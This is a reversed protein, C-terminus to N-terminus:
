QQVAEFLVEWKVTDTQISNGASLPIDYDVALWKDAGPALTFISDAGSQAPGNVLASSGVALAGLTDGGNVFGDINLTMVSDLEGDGGVTCGPEDVLEPETCSDDTDAVKKLKTAVTVPLTGSNVVHIQQTPNTAGPQANSVNLPYAIASNSLTADSFVIDLSGTSVSQAPTTEEDHFQAFTGGGVLSAAVVLGLSGIMINKM